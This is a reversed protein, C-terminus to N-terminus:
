LLPDVSCGRKALAPKAETLVQRAFGALGYARNMHEGASTKAKAALAVAQGYERFMSGILRQSLKLSPDLPKVYDVRKAADRAEKVVEAAGIDGTKYGDAWVGLATMNTSATEIFRKDTASCSHGQARATGGGHMAFGIAFALVLAAASLGIGRLGEEGNAMRSPAAM